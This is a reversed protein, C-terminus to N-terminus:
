AWDESQYIATVLACTPLEGVKTTSTKINVQSPNFPLNRHTLLDSLSLMTLEELKKKVASESIDEHHHEVFFGGGSEMMYWGVSAGVFNGKKESVSRSQVVYLKHGHESKDNRTYKDVSIVAANAPIVSSLLILNYNHVGAAILASDFASLMTSGTGESSIIFIDM